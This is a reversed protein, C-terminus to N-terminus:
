KFQEKVKPRTFFAIYLLSIVIAFITAFNVAFHNRAIAEGYFVKNINGYSVLSKTLSLLIEAIHLIVVAKRAIERLLVLGLIIIMGIINWAIGTAVFFGSLVGFYAQYRDSNPFSLCATMLFIALLVILIILIVSRKKEV